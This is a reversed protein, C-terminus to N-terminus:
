SCTPNLTLLGDPLRLTITKAAHDVATIIEAVAPILLEEGVRDVLFLTNQTSDDVGTITGVPGTLEDILTYGTFYDWSYDGPDPRNTHIATKPFYVPVNTLRKAKEESDVGSLQVLAISDSKFRYSELVFPVLIGDLEGILFPCESEDFCDDTFAFSLEGKIGHPKNFQGIKIVEEWRIM